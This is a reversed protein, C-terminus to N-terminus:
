FTTCDGGTIELKFVPSVDITCGAGVHMLDKSPQFRSLFFLLPMSPVTILLQNKLRTSLYVMSFVKVVGQSILLRRKNCEIKTFKIRRLACKLVNTHKLFYYFISVHM